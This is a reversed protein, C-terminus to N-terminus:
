ELMDVIQNNIHLKKVGKQCWKEIELYHGQDGHKHYHAWLNEDVNTSNQGGSNGFYTKKEDIQETKAQKRRQQGQNEM